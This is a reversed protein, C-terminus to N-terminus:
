GRYCCVNEPCGPALNEGVVKALTCINFRATPATTSSDIGGSCFRWIPKRQTAVALNPAYKDGHRIPCVKHLEFAISKLLDAGVLDLHMAPYYQNM